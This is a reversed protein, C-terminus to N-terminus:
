MSRSAYRCSVASVAGDLRGNGVGDSRDSFLRPSSLQSRLVATRSEGGWLLLVRSATARPGEVDAPGVHHGLAAVSRRGVVLAGSHPEHQRDDPRGSHPRRDQSRRRRRQPHRDHCRGMDRGSVLQCASWCRPWWRLSFGCRPESCCAVCCCRVSRRSSRWVRHRPRKPTRDARTSSRCATLRSDCLRRKAGNRITGAHDDTVGDDRDRDDACRDRRCNDQIVQRDDGEAFSKGTARDLSSEHGTCHDEQRRRTACIDSWSHGGDGALLSVSRDVSRPSGGLALDSTTALRIVIQLLTIAASALDVHVKRIEAQAQVMEAAQAVPKLQDVPHTYQLMELM